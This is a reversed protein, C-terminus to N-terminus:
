PLPEVKVLQLEVGVRQHALDALAQDYWGKQLNGQLWNVNRRKVSSSMNEPLTSFLYDTSPYGGAYRVLAQVYEREYDSLQSINRAKSYSFRM